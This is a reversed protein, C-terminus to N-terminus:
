WVERGKPPGWDEEAPQYDEPIGTLIDELKYKGRVGLSPSVVVRGDQVTTEVKARAAVDAKEM